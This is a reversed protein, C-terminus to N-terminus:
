PQQGVHLTANSYAMVSGFVSTAAKDYVLGIWMFSKLLDRMKSWSDIQCYGMNALLLPRLWEDDTADFASVSGVVLLWLLLKSSVPPSTPRRLSSRFASTFHAYSAGLNKWHLFIGCSFALLGLRNIEDSSSTVFHMNLLRYMLSSMSDLFTEASICQGSDVAFNIVECFESMFGWAQALEDDIDSLFIALDHHSGSASPKPLTLLRTLDPHSPLSEQSLPSNFFM